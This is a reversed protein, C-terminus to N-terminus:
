HKEQAEKKKKQFIAHRCEECFEHRKQVMGMTSYDGMFWKKCDKCKVKKLIPRM